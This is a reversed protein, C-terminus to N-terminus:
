STSTAAPISPHSRLAMSVTTPHVGALAAVDDMTAYAKARGAAPKKERESKM